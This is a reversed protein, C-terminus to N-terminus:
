PKEKRAADIAARINSVGLGGEPDDPTSWFLDRSGYVLPTRVNVTMTELWNLRQIDREAEALRAIYWKVGNPGEAWDELVKVRGEAEEKAKLAKDLRFQFDQGTYKHHGEIMAKQNSTQLQAASLQESM